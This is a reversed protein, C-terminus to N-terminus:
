PLVEIRYIRQHTPNADDRKTATIGTAMVDGSLDNWSLAEVTDKYQVRYRGNSVTSWTLTAGGGDLKLSQIAPRPVLTLLGVASSASQGDPNIVTISHAGSAADAAVDLLLTLHTADLFSVARVTVGSGGITVSLHNSFSIDPDYFGAGNIAAGSVTVTVNSQGVPLAPPICNTPLAPPPANLQIVRVGWSNLANCYEQVTWLTMNDNPDVCTFSFDGWRQPNDSSFNYSAAGAQVLQPIRTTGLPDSALRGTVAIGAFQNDASASCGLAMHGQGSMACSPMWYNVPHATAADFVTGHQSLSPTTALNTIEYWRSGLRDGSDTGNGAADVQINHATWLRGGRIGAAFLRDDLASLPRTSGLSPAGDQPDATSPVIVTLNSSLTPTGAPNLIRRLVLKGKDSNHVGIFYGASAAPDDNDVGQPTYPGSGNASTLQRFATVRLNGALLNTKNVVFGTTGEYQDSTTFLNFGLYLAHQDVGLTPYDAFLNNDGSPTVTNHQFSFFTFSSSSTILPGSSAALLVRNNRTVDDVMIVFWRRSLRDYRVHPDTTGSGSTKVSNFFNDTTTNLPGLVGNKSFVKIRGNVCVLFQSPGAAGMSDPPVDGSESFQAGLFNTGVTQPSLGALLEREGALAARVASTAAPPKTKARKLRSPSSPPLDRDRAMVQAVSEQIGPPGDWPQGATENEALVPVSSILALLCLGLSGKITYDPRRWSLVVSLASAPRSHITM